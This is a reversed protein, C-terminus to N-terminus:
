EIIIIPELNFIDSYEDDGKGPNFDKPVCFFVCETIVGDTYVTQGGTTYSGTKSTDYRLYLYNHYKDTGQFVGTDSVKKQTVSIVPADGNMAIGVRYCPTATSEFLYTTKTIDPPNYATIKRGSKSQMEAVINKYRTSNDSPSYVGFDDEFNSQNVPIGISALLEIAACEGMTNTGILVVSGPAVDSINESIGLVTVSDAMNYSTEVGGKFGAIGESSISSVIMVNDDQNFSYAPFEYEPLPITSDQAYAKGDKLKYTASIPALSERGWLFLEYESAEGIPLVLNGDSIDAFFVDSLLGGDYEAALFRM